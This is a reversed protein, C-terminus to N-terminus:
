DVYLFENSNLLTHCFDILAEPPDAEDTCGAVTTAEPRGQTQLFAEAEARETPEPPRGYALHYALDIRQPVDSAERRLRDAFAKARALTWPGNIMLLAQTPTTTVNRLPTTISGDPADFADLLPDRTNRIVKTYTTRRPQSPEVGPGGSRLDLEGSAALMADRIPEVELRRTNRRWLLRNDPDKLRAVEPAPRLASQRYAASTMILRHVPKLSWGGTVLQTALWDLLEPHSPRDGLRGFDSSTAVLGRGFHYQWIRNALVRATLPNDPRFLWRALATRRGTSNAATPRKAIPAPKPDLLTLFGPEIEEQARDGPIVTPPATSGVDSVTFARPLPAPRDRDFQALQKRLAEWRTKEEGKILDAIKAHEETIQRYALEYILHEDPTRRSAPKRLVAQIEEPFKDIAGRAANDLHPREIAAIQDRIAATKAEWVELKQQYAAAERASALPLDDRPLLPTFFAQLRYYDRQLIPDFKHDHCRACGMGLGLFVDSTVDTIDNLIAARQARVDRQNFEYSWLRLFGTAVMMEPDGPALEDGALQETVFRDYPTDDNLSRIVYDRYRWADPRYADQRYGDSEAYRVLDLWHRAWREGYRPSALLRDVLAEYARPSDDAVFADVEEPTPPLGHLDFTARRILTRRDAEPAPTLGEAELRALLFRDIPTRAWGADAVAPVVPNKVPQFSWFARDEATIKPPDPAKAVPGPAAGGSDPWPAGMEIWRILVARQEDKLQGTPPMQLGGYNIAEVLLSEDCKGPVVAPGSDGGELASARSDLRLGGKHKAEGHCKLCNEALLPRVETEFFKVQAPDPEAARPMRPAPLGITMAMAAAFTWRLM